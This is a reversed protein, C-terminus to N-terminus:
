VYLFFLIFYVNSDSISYNLNNSYSDFVASPLFNFKSEGFCLSFYDSFAMILEPSLVMVLSFIDQYNASFLSLELLYVNTFELNFDLLFSFFLVKFSMLSSNSLLLILDLQSVKTLSDVLLHSNLFFSNNIFSLFSFDSIIIGSM